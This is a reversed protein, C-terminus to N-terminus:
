LQVQTERACVAKEKDTKLEQAESKLRENDSKLHDARTRWYRVDKQSFASKLSVPSCKHAPVLHQPRCKQTSTVEM